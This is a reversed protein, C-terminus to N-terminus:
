LLRAAVATSFLLDMKAMKASIGTMGAAVFQHLRCVIDRTLPGLLPYMKNGSRISLHQRSALDSEAILGERFCLVRLFSLSSHLNVNNRVGLKGRKHSDIPGLLFVYKCQPVQLRTSDFDTLDRM